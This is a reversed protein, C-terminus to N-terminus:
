SAEQYRPVFSGIHRAQTPEIADRDSSRSTAQQQEDHEAEATAGRLRLRRRRAKCEIRYRDFRGVYGLLRGGM